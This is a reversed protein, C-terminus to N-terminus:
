TKKNKEKKKFAIDNDNCLKRVHSIWNYSENLRKIKEQDLMGIQELYNNWMMEHVKIMRQKTWKVGVLPTFNDKDMKIIMVVGAYKAVKGIGVILLFLAGIWIIVYGVNQIHKFVMM